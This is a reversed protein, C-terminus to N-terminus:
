GTGHGPGCITVTVGDRIETQGDRVPARKAFYRPVGSGANRNLFGLGVLEKLTHSLPPPAPPTAGIMSDATIPIGTDSIVRATALVTRQLTTLGRGLRLLEPRLDAHNRCAMTDALIPRRQPGAKEFCATPIADAIPFM